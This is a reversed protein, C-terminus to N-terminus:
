YYVRREVIKNIPQLNQYYANSNGSAIATSDTEKYGYVKWFRLANKFANNYDNELTDIAYTVADWADDRFKKLERVQLEKSVGKKSTVVWAQKSFWEILNKCNDTIYLKYGDEGFIMPHQFKAGSKKDIHQKFYSKYRNIKDREGHTKLGSYFGTQFRKGKIISRDAKLITNKVSNTGGHTNDIARDYVIPCGENLLGQWEHNVNIETPDEIFHEDYIIYQKAGNVVNVAVKVWVSASKGGGKTIGIIKGEYAGHDYGSITHFYEPKFDEQKIINSDTFTPFAKEDGMGFNMQYERQYQEESFLPIGPNKETSLEIDYKYFGKFLINGKGDKLITDEDLIPKGFSNLRPVIRAPFERCAQVEAFRQPGNYVFPFLDELKGICNLQTRKAYKKEIGMMLEDYSPPVEEKRIAYNWELGLQKSYKVNKSDQIKNWVEEQVWHGDEEPPTGAFMVWGGQSIIAPMLIGFPNKPYQSIEEGYVGKIKKGRIKDGFTFGASVCLIKAGNFVRGKYSANNAGKLDEIFLKFYINDEDEPKEKLNVAWQIPNAKNEFWKKYLLADKSWKEKMKNEFEEPAKIYIDNLDEVEKSGGFAELFIDSILIDYVDKELPASAIFLDENEAHFIRDWWITSCTKSKMTQRCIFLFLEDVLPKNIINGYKDYKRWKAANYLAIQAPALDYNPFSDIFVPSYSISKKPM